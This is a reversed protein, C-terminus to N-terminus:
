VTCTVSVGAGLGVALQICSSCHGAVPRSLPACGLVTFNHAFFFRKLNDCLLLYGFCREGPEKHKQMIHELGSFLPTIEPRESCKVKNNM